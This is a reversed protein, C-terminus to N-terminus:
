VDVTWLLFMRRFSRGRQRNREVLGCLLRMEEETPWGIEFDTLEPRRVM